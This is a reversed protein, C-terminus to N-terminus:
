DVSRVVAPLKTKSVRRWGRDGHVHCNPLSRQLDAIGNDTVGLPVNQPVGSGSDHLFIAELGDLTQLHELGADTIPTGALMVMELSSLQHLKALSADDIATGQLRLTSLSPLRSLHQLGQGTINTDDLVLEDLNSLGTLHVLGEDTVRTGRLSLIWLNDLKSLYRLGNDTIRTDALNLSLVSTDSLNTLHILNALSILDDDNANTGELSVSPKGISGGLHAIRNEARWRKHWYNGCTAVVVGLIATLLLIGRVTFQMWSLQTRSKM